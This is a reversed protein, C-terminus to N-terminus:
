VETCWQTGGPLPWGGAAEQGNITRPVAIWSTLGNVDYMLWMKRYSGGGMPLNVTFSGTPAAGGVTVLGSTVGSSPAGLYERGSVLLSMPASSSNFWADWAAADTENQAVGQGWFEIESIGTGSTATPNEPILNLVLSACSVPSSLDLSNWGSSLRSMDVQTWGAIPTLKGTGDDWSASLQFPSPGFLRLRSFQEVGEFTVRVQDPGYPTYLTTTDRDFAQGITQTELAQVQAPLSAEPIVGVSLPTLRVMGGLSIAAKVGVTMVVLLTIILAAQLRRPTLFVLHSTLRRALSSFLRIPNVIYFSKLRSFTHRFASFFGNLRSVWM